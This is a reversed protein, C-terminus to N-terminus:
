LCCSSMFWCSSYVYSYVVYIYIYIYGRPHGPASCGTEWVLPRYNYRERGLAYGIIISKAHPRITSAWITQRRALVRYKYIQCGSAFNISINNGQPWHIPARVPIVIAICQVHILVHYYTYVYIYIYIYIYGQTSRQSSLGAPKLFSLYIYIYIYVCVYM